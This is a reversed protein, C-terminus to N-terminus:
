LQSDQICGEAAAKSYLMQKKAWIALNKKVLFGEESITKYQNFRRGGLPVSASLRAVIIPLNCKPIGPVGILAGSLKWWDSDDVPKDAQYTQKALTHVETKRGWQSYRITEDAIGKLQLDMARLLAPTAPTAM